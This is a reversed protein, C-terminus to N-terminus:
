LACSGSCWGAGPFFFFDVNLCESLKVSLTFTFFLRNKCDWCVRGRYAARFSKFVTIVILDRCFRAVAVLGWCLLDVVIYGRSMWLLDWCLGSVDM